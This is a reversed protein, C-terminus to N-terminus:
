YKLMNTLVCTVLVRLIIDASLGTVAHASPISEDCRSPHRAM